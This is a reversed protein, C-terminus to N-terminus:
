ISIRRWEKKFRLEHTHTHTYVFIHIIKKSIVSKSRECEERELKLLAWWYSHRPRFWILDQKPKCRKRQNDKKIGFLIKPVKITDIVSEILYYFYFTM